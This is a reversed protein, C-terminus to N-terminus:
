VLKTKAEQWYEEMEELSMVDWNKGEKQSQEELYNFRQIFKLNTKELATEPNVGIFRAYNILSFLLDGFEEEIKEKNADQNNTNEAKKLEANLESM